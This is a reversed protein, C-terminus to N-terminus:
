KQRSIRNALSLPVKVNGARHILGNRKKSRETKWTILHLVFKLNNDEEQFSREM